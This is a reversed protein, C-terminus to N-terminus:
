EDRLLSRGPREHANQLGFQTSNVSRFGLLSIPVCGLIVAPVAEVAEQATEAVDEKTVGKAAKSVKEIWGDVTRRAAGVMPSGNSKSKVLLPTRESQVVAASRGQEEEEEVAEEEEEEESSDGGIEDGLVSIKAGLKM